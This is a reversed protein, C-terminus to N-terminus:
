LGLGWLMLKHFLYMSSINMMQIPEASSRCSNTSLIFEMWGVMLNVYSLSSWSSVNRFIVTYLPGLKLM